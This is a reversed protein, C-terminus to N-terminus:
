AGPKQTCIRLKDEDYFFVFSEGGTIKTYGFNAWKMPSYAGLIKEFNSRSITITHQYNKCKEHFTNIKFGDLSSSYIKTYGKINQLINKMYENM